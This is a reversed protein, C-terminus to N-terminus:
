RFAFFGRTDIFPVPARRYNADYALYGTALNGESGNPTVITNSMGLPDLINRQIYDGWAMGSVAEIVGGLLTYGLNSYSHEQLPPLMPQRSKTTAIVEDWSQFVNETWHPITADRPLGSTHTLCHYISIAPADPYQLNFWDLYKSLPDDLRLKGAEYLQMIATATFTKSISAIRFRSELTAPTQSELNAHGYAKGWLLEGQYVLGLALAPLHSEHQHRGAWKDLLDVATSLDPHDNLFDTNPM